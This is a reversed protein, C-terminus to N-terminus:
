STVGQRRYAFLVNRGQVFAPIQRRTIAPCTAQYASVAVRRCRREWLDVNELQEAIVILEPYYNDLLSWFIAAAKLTYSKAELNLQKCYHRVADRLQQEQQNAVEVGQSYIALARRGLLSASLRFVWERADELKAQQATLGGVWLFISDEGVSHQLLNGLCLPGGPQNVKGVLLVSHLERWPHKDPSASLYAYNGENGRKVVTAMPERFAPFKPFEYGQTLLCQDSGPCLRIARSLPVLRGLYSNGILKAEDTDPLPLVDYEWIPRGPSIGELRSYPVLNWHITRLLTSGVIIALLPSGEVCPAQTTSRSIESGDWRASFLLGGPHFCQFTILSLALDRLPIERSSLLAVHDFLTHANGSAYAFNLKGVNTFCGKDEPQVPQLSPVQLFPKDGYLDFRDRWRTLYDSVAPQIEDLCTQWETNSEPGKLAAHTICLLLRTVAVRELPPLALDSLLHAEQFLKRLGVYQVGGAVSRHYLVPIWPEEVLNFTNM